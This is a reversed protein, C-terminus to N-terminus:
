SVIFDRLAYSVGGLKGTLWAALMPLGYPSIIFAAAMWAVGAWLGATFLIGLAILFVIGSLIGLVAGSAIVFFKCVGYLVSMALMFPLALLKLILRM